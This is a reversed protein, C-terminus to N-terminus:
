SESTPGSQRVRAQLSRVAESLYEVEEEMEQLRRATDDAEPQRPELRRALARGIESDLFIAALPILLLFIVVLGLIWM